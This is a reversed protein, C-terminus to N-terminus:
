PVPATAVRCGRFDFQYDPALTGDESARGHEDTTTFTWDVAAPEGPFHARVSSWGREGNFNRDVLLEVDGVCSAERAAIEAPGAEVVVYTCRFEAGDATGAFAYSAVRDAALEITLGDECNGKLETVDPGGCGSGTGGLLERRRLPVDSDAAVLVAEVRAPTGDFRVLLRADGPPLEEVTAGGECAGPVITATGGDRRCDLACSYPAGDVDGRLVHSGEPCDEPELIVGLELEYPESSCKGDACGGLWLAGAAAAGLSWVIARM